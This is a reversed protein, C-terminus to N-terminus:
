IFFAGIFTGGCGGYGFLAGVPYLFYPHLSVGFFWFALFGFNCVSIVMCETQDLHGSGAAHDSNM